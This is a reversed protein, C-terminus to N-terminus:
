NQHQIGQLLCHRLLVISFSIGSIPNQQTHSMTKADKASFFHKCATCKMLFFFYRSFLSSENRCFDCFM